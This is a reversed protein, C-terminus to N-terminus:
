MRSRDRMHSVDETVAICGAAKRAVKWKRGLRGYM